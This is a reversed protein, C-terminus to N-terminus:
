CCCCDVCFSCCIYSVEALALGLSGKLADPPAFNVTAACGIAIYIDMMHAALHSLPLYSLLCEEGVRLKMIELYRRASWTLQDQSLM